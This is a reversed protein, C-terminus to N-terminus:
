ALRPVVVQPAADRMQLLREVVGESLAMILTNVERRHEGCLDLLLGKLRQPQTCIGHGHEKIIETLTIRASDSM